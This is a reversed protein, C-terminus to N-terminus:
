TIVQWLREDYNKNDFNYPKSICQQLGLRPSAVLALAQLTALWSPLRPIVNCAGPLTSFHSHIFGWAELPAKVKPTPTGISKWVKLFCNCLDFSLSDIIKKYWQFDRQIYIDLIPEYSWNSYKFCLNHGFFPNHTLNGIQSKVMLLQSDGQNERMCTAHSIGNLLDWFHSCSQKLGWRLRLYACFTIARLTAPTGVILIEPSGSPFGLVFHWKSTPKM